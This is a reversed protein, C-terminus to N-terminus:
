LMIERQGSVLDPHRLRGQSPSRLTEVVKELTELVDRFMEPLKGPTEVGNTADRRHFCL